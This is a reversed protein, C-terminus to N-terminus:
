PFTDNFDGRAVAGFKTTATARWNPRLFEEGGVIVQSIKTGSLPRDKIM